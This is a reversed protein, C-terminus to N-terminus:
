EDTGEEAEVDTAFKFGFLGGKESDDLELIFWDYSIPARPDDTERRARVSDWLSSVTQPVDLHELLHGGVSLLAREASLHKAPLIM